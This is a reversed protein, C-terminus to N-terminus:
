AQQRSTRKYKMGIVGVIFTNNLSHKSFKLTNAYDENRAFIIGNYQNQTNYVQIMNPQIYILDEYNHTALKTNKTYMIEYTGNSCVVNISTVKESTIAKVNEYHNARKMQLNYKWLYENVDYTHFTIQTDNDLNDGDEDAVLIMFKDYASISKNLNINATLAQWGTTSNRDSIPLKKGSAVKLKKEDSSYTDISLPGIITYLESGYIWELDYNEFGPINYDIYSTLCGYHVLQANNNYEGIYDTKPCEKFTKVGDIEQDGTLRVTGDISSQQPKNILDNYNGTFAVDKLTKFKNNVLKTSPVTTDKANEWVNVVSLGSAGSLERYQVNQIKGNKQEFGAIYQGDKVEVIVNTVNKKVINDVDKALEKLEPSVSIKGNAEIITNNDAKPVKVFAQDHENLGVFKQEGEQDEVKDSIKFGGIKYNEARPMEVNHMFDAATIKKSVYEQDDNSLKQSIILVDNNQDVSTTDNLQSIPIYQREEAM